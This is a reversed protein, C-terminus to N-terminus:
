AAEYSIKGNEFTEAELTVTENNGSKNTKFNITQEGISGVKYIYYVKGAEVFMQLGSAAPYLGQTFIKVELPLLDSPFDNPITFKLSVARDQGNTINVLNGGQDNIKIPAFSFAKRAMVRIVRALEGNGNKVIISGTYPEEPIYSVGRFSIVGTSKDFSLSSADVVEEDDEQRVSVTVNSNDFNDSAVSPYYKAWTTVGQNPTTLIFLTREVAIKSTGNSIIPYKETVPDLAVNNHSAGALAAELTDYGKKMVKNITVAYHYNREINYRDKQENVLDIKYFYPGQGGYTAKLIVTTVHEANANRREFILKPANSFNSSNAPVLVMDLPETISGTDFKKTKRSFPAVTGKSPAQHITYGEINFDSLSCQVSVKAQNRLLSVTQASFSNENIGGILEMRAWFTVRDTSMLAVAGAENSGVANGDFTGWDAYNAIFHLIRKRNSAPLTASFHGGTETQNTLTAVARTIFIGQEDFVLISLNSVDGNGRTSVVNYEPIDVAFHVEVNQDGIKSDVQVDNVRSCSAFFLLTGLLVSIVSYITQKM